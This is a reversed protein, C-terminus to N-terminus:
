FPLDNDVDDLPELEVKEKPKKNSSYGGSRGGGSEVANFWEGIVYVNNPNSNQPKYDSIRGALLITQWKQLGKAQEALGEWMTINAYCNEGDKKGLGVSFNIRLKAGETVTIDGVIKGAVIIGGDKSEIKM